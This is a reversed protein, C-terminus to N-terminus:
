NGTELFFFVGVFFELKERIQDINTPMIFFEVAVLASM